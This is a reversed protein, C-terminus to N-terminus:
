AQTQREGFLNYLWGFLLGAIAGDVLGYGAGVLVDVFTRSAHFGPYVSSMGRLFGAGYSPVALNIAGVFLLCGGWLVGSAIALARTSLRM